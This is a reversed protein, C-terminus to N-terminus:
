SALLKLNGRGEVWDVAVVRVRDGVLVQRKIKKLLGRVVCLLEM